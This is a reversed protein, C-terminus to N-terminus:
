LSALGVKSQQIQDVLKEVAVKEPQKTNTAGAAAQIGSSAADKVAQVEKAADAEAQKVAQM